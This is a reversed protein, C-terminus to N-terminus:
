SPTLHKGNLVAGSGTQMGCGPFFCKLEIERSSEHLEGLPSMLVLDTDDPVKTVSSEVVLAHKAFTSQGFFTGHIRKGNLAASTNSGDPRLRGFNLETWNQFALLLLCMHLLISCTGPHLPEICDQRSSCSVKCAAPHGARCIKCKQDYSFSLLVSDGEKVRTVAKGVRIVKGSGEHGVMNPFPSPFAGNAILLDAATTPSASHTM